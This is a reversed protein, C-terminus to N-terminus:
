SNKEMESIPTSKMAGLITRLGMNQVKDLNNKNATPATNWTTSAYQAIPRVAGSYVQRLIGSHGAWKTGALKKMLSLRKISGAEVAEIHPNWTLRTNLTVGLFTPTDVHPVQQDELTLKVKEKTTSLSFLTSVTKIKNLRLAWKRTWDSVKNIIDQIIHTPQLQRTSLPTGFQLIMQM